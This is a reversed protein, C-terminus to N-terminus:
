PRYAWLSLRPGPCDRCRMSTGDHTRWLMLVAVPGAAVVTVLDWPFRLVQRSGHGIRDMLPGDGIRQWTGTAIDYLTAQRCVGLVYGPLAASQPYCESFVLGVPKLEGWHDSEPDYEQSRQEYDWALMRKGALVASTAQPSLRSPPLTRWGNTAPDYAAGISTRTTAYNRGDLLSGFVLMRDGTWVGSALNLGIPADAIRRWSNTDPDYAAGARPGPGRPAGGGWVILESGTWVQVGDRTEGRSVAPLPAPPLTRWTRTDPDYAQGSVGSAVGPLGFDLFIAEDGTWVGRPWFTSRPAPPM